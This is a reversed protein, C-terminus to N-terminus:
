PVARAAAGAGALLYSKQIAKVSLMADRRFAGRTARLVIRATNLASQLRGALALLRIIRMLKIVDEVASRERSFVLYRVALLASSKIYMLVTAANLLDAVRGPLQALGDLLWFALRLDGLNALLKALDSLLTMPAAALYHDVPNVTDVAQADDSAKAGSTPLATVNFKIEMFDQLDLLHRAAVQCMAALTIGNTNRTQLEPVDRAAAPKAWQTCREQCAAVLAVLGSRVATELPTVGLVKLKVLDGPSNEM